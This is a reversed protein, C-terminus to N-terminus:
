YNCTITVYLHLIVSYNRNKGFYYCNKDRFQKVKITRHTNIALHEIQITTILLSHFPNHSHTKRRTEETISHSIQHFNYRPNKKTKKEHEFFHRNPLNWPKSTRARFKKWEDSETPVTKKKAETTSMIQKSKNKGRERYSTIFTHQM